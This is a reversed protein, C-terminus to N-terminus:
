SESSFPISVKPSTLIEENEERKNKPVPNGDTSIHTKELEQDEKTLVDEINIFILKITWNSFLIFVKFYNKLCISPIFLIVPFALLISLLSNLLSTSVSPKCQNM